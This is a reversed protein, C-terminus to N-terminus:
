PHGTQKPGPALDFTYEVRRGIGDNFDDPVSVAWLAEELCRRSASL